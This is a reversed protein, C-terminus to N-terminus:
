TAYPTSCRALPCLVQPSESDSPAMPVHGLLAVGGLGVASVAIGHAGCGIVNSSTRSIAIAIALSGSINIRLSLPRLVPILVRRRAGTFHGCTGSKIGSRGEM